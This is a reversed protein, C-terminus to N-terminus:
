GTPLAPGGDPGLWVLSTIASTDLTWSHKSREAWEEFARGIYSRTKELTWGNVTMLHNLAEEERGITRARGFHTSLNCRPCIATLEALRAVRREDDYDWVEHCVLKASPEGCTECHGGARAYISSRIMDWQGRRLTRALSKRWLSQPVLEVTLRPTSRM